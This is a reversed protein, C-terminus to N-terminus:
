KFYLTETVRNKREEFFQKQRLAQWQERLGAYDCSIYDILYSFRSGQSSNKFSKHPTLSSFIVVDGANMELTISAATNVATPDIDRPDNKAAALHAHQLGPYLVLPGNEYTVAEIAIFAKITSDRPLKLKPAYFDADRHLGFGAVGPLKTIFKDKVAYAQTGLLSNAIHSLRPDNKIAEFCPHLDSIYEIGSVCLSGDADTRIVNRLNHIDQLYDQKFLDLCIQKISAMEKKSFLQRFVCFGQQQMIHEADSYQNALAEYHEIMLSDRHKM